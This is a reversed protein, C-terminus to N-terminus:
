FFIVLKSNNKEIQKIKLNIDNLADQIELKQSIQKKREKEVEEIGILGDGEFKSKWQQVESKVRSLQKFIEEKQQAEERISERCQELDYEVKKVEGALNIRDRHEEDATNKAIELQTLAQTKSKELQTM